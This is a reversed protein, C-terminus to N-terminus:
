SAQVSVTYNTLETLTGLEELIPPSYSAPSIAAM